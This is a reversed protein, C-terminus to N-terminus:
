RSSMALEPRTSAATVVAVEGRSIRAHEAEVRALATPYGLVPADSVLPKVPWLVLM